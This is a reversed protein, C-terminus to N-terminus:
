TRERVNTEPMAHCARAPAEGTSALAPGDEDWLLEIPAGIGPPEDGQTWRVPVLLGHGVRAYGVPDPRSHTLATKWCAVPPSPGAGPDLPKPAGPEAPSTEARDDPGDGIEHWRVLRLALARSVRVVTGDTLTIRGRRRESEVREVDGRTVRLSPVNASDEPFVWVEDRTAVVLVRQRGMRGPGDFRAARCVDDPVLAAARPRQERSVVSLTVPKTVNPSRTTAPTQSM